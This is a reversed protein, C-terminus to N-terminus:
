DWIELADGFRFQNKANLSLSAQLLRNFQRDISLRSIKLLFLGAVNIVKESGDHDVNGLRHELSLVRNLDCFIWPQRDGRNVEFDFGVLLDALKNSRKLERNQNAKCGLGELGM